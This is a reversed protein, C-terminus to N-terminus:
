SAQKEPTRRRLVARLRTAEGLPDQQGFFRAFALALLILTRVRPKQDPQGYVWDFSVRAVRFRQGTGHGRQLAVEGTEPDAM